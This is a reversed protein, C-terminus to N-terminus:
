MLKISESKSIGTIICRYDANRIKLISIESLKMSTMILDHCRNCVYLQFKFREKFFILLSLYQM